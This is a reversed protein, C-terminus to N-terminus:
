KNAAMEDLIEALRDLLLVGGAEITDATREDKLTLVFPGQRAAAILKKIEEVQAPTM